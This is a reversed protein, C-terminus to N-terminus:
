LRTCPTAMQQLRGCPGTPYVWLTYCGKVTARIAGRGSSGPKGAAGVDGLADRRGREEGVTRPDATLACGGSGSYPTAALRSM